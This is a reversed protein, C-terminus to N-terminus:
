VHNSIKTNLFANNYETIINGLCRQAEHLGGLARVDSIDKMDKGYDLPWDWQFSTLGKSNLLKTLKSGNTSGTKDNDYVIIFGRKATRLYTLTIDDVFSTESQFAIAHCGMTRFVMVDKLSSTIILPLLASKFVKCQVLGQICYKSTNSKWKDDPPKALPRYIKIRETKDVFDRVKYTYIPNDDSHVWLPNGNIMIGQVPVINYISLLNESIGYCDTWYEKDIRSFERPKCLIPMVRKRKHPVQLYSYRFKSAVPERSQLNNLDIKLLRALDLVNGQYSEGGFDKFCLTGHSNFYLNFSPKSEKRFPSFYLQKLKPRYGLIETYLSLSKDFSRIVGEHMNEYPKTRLLQCVQQKNVVEDVGQESM